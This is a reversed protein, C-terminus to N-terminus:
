HLASLSLFEELGSSQRTFMETTLEKIFCLCLLCSLARCSRYCITFALGNAPLRKLPTCPQSSDTSLMQESTRPGCRWRQAKRDGFSGIGLSFVLLRMFSTWSFCGGGHGAPVTLTPRWIRSPSGTSRTRASKIVSPFCLTHTYSYGHKAARVQSLQRHPPVTLSM